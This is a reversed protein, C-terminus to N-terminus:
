RSRQLKRFDDLIAAFDALAEDAQRLAPLYTSSDAIEPMASPTM